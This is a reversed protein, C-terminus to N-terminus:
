HYFLDTFSTKNIKQYFLAELPNGIFVCKQNGHSSQLWELIHKKFYTACWQLMKAVRIKVKITRVRVQQHLFADELHGIYLTIYGGMFRVWVHYILTYGTGRRMHSDHSLFSDYYDKRYGFALNTLHLYGTPMITYIDM